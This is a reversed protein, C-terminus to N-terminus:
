AGLHLMDMPGPLNAASQEGEGTVYVSWVQAISVFNSVVTQLESLTLESTFLEYLL